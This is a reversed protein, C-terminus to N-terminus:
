CIPTSLCAAQAKNIALRRSLESSGRASPGMRGPRQAGKALTQTAPESQADSNGMDEAAASAEANAVQDEVAHAQQESHHAHDASAEAELKARAKRLADLQDQRGILEKPLEDGRKGKRYRADEQANILEAKRQPAAIEAKPQAETWQKASAKQGSCGSM